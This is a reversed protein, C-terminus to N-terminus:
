RHKSGLLQRANHLHQRTFNGFESSQTLEPVLLAKTSLIICPSISVANTDSGTSFELM